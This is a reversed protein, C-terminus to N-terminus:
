WDIEAWLSPHDSAPSSEYRANSVSTGPSVFIHDILEEPLWLSEANTRALSGTLFADDLFSRTLQYQATDPEFNFDGMLIVDSLNDVVELIEKQQAIPGSNGLHTVFINFRHGNVVIQAHIAATQEGQSYLYFTEPHEIPYRSLLAIGFTGANTPPGYYSFMNLQSAFYRIIDTNGNAIRASDCEQIGLIDPNVKRIVQIQQDPNKMGYASVGQQINYTMVKMGSTNATDPQPAPQTYTEGALVTISLIFVILPLFITGFQEQVLSSFPHAKPQIFLTSLLLVIGPVLYALWFKDRFFPGVVPIYDYVTTFIHAFVLLLLFLSSLTFAFGLQHLGPRSRRLEDYLALFCLFLVPLFVPLLYVPLNAIGSLVPPFLPYATPTAPFSIQRPIFVALLIANFLVIMGLYKPKGLSSLFHGGLTLILSFGLLAIALIVFFWVTQGIGTWRLIVRPATFSFYLLILVSTLGLVLLTVKIGSAGANEDDNKKEVTGTAALLLRLMLPITLAIMIWGVWAFAPSTSPDIGAGLSHLTMSGLVGLFLGSTILSSPFELEDRAHKVILIPLFLLFAGVGFGSVIMRLRTDLLPEIGRSVLTISGLLVLLWRPTKKRIFLLLLPTFLLLIFGIEAPIDTGLLGFTYIAEIFDNLLQFFFLFLFAFFLIIAM